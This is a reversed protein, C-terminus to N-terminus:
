LFSHNIKSKLYGLELFNYKTTSIECNNDLYLQM